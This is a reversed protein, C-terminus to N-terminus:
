GYGGMPGSDNTDCYVIRGYESKASHLNGDALVGGGREVGGGLHVGVM